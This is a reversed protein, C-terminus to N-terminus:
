LTCAHPSYVFDGAETVKYAATGFQFYKEIWYSKNVTIPGPYLKPYAQFFSQAFERTLRNCRDPRGGDFVAMCRFPCPVDAYKDLAIVEHKNRLWPSLRGLGILLPQRDLVVKLEVSIFKEFM